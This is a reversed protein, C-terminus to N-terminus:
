RRGNRCLPPGNRAAAVLSTSISRDADPPTKPAEERKGHEM